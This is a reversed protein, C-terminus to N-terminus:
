DKIFELIKKVTIEQQMGRTIKGPPDGKQLGYNGFQAHNGGEIVIINETYDIKDELNDNLSGYITLSKEPPYDGYIYAGLLILGQIKKSNDSAYTSAMAGGLSHGGVYWRDIEPILKYVDDAAKVDFFAFNLPMDVLVCTIGEKRLEELMPLYAKSEVKAGPYFILGTKPPVEPELITLNDVVRINKNEEWIKIAEQDAHYYSSAYFIFGIGLLVILALLSLIGIKVKKRMNYKEM